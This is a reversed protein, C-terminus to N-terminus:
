GGGAPRGLGEDPARVLGGAQARAPPPYGKTLPTEPPAAGTAILRCGDVADGRPRDIARGIRAALDAQLAPALGGMLYLPASAPLDLLAVLGALEAVAGALIARAEPCGADAAEIALPALAAVDAPRLGSILDMLGDYGGIRAFLLRSLITEAVLGELARVGHRMVRRGIWFGSGRDGGAWGFGDRQVSRGDEMLRHGVAGTGAIVLGAPQGGGAGILAAYGDTVIECRAFGPLAAAFRARADPSQTGAAGIVAVVEPDAPGDAGRCAAWARAVNDAAGAPDTSVNCPGARGEGLLRGDAAWLRARTTSGGGDVGLIGQAAM